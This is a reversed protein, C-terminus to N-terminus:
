DNARAIGVIQDGEIRNIQPPNKLREIVTKLIERSLSEKTVARALLLDGQQFPV